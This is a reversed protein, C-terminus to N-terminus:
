SQVCRPEKIPGFRFLYVVMLFVNELNVHEPVQGSADTALVHFQRIRLSHRRWGHGFVNQCLGCKLKVVLCKLISNCTVFYMKHVILGHRGLVYAYLWM